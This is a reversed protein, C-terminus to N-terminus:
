VFGIRSTSAEPGRAPTSALAAALCENDLRSKRARAALRAGERVVYAVDSLPRDALKRALAAIDLDESKPLDSLLSSLLAQIEEATAYDVKIIQDFRGRRLIAQDILDLRNTMGIILVGNKVAAPIQRLFEAVEEVRHHSSGLGLDRDALIAEMEDITVVSPAHEMAEEFVQAVKRGTEHIFPSAISSSDISYLPWGLFEVLREVAFTKGCGPPGELVMAPPFEIGLSRYHDRNHIIDIVHENFFTELLKRGPLQFYAEPSASPRTTREERESLKSRVKAGGPGGSPLLDSVEFGATQVVEKLHQPGLWNIIKQIRGLPLVSMRLGGSLWSGLVVDDGVKVNSTYTPLLRSLKDVYLADHLSTDPDIARTEKMACAFAIAHAKTDPSPCNTLHALVHSHSSSIAAYSRTGFEFPQASGKDLLGSSVWRGLLTLEVILTRQGEKMEIIQWDLGSDAISSTHQGDPLVFGIPLWADKAM